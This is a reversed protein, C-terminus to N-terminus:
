SFILLFFLHTARCTPPLTGMHTLWTTCQSAYAWMHSVPLGTGGCPWPLLGRPIVIQRLPSIAAAAPSGRISMRLTPLIHGPLWQIATRLPMSKNSHHPWLTPQAAPSPRVLPCCTYRGLDQGSLKYRNFEFISIETYLSWFFKCIKHVSALSKLTESVILILWNPTWILSM